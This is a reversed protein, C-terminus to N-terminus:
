CSTTAEFERPAAIQSGHIVQSLNEVVDGLVVAQASLQESAAASQEATAASGQVVGEMTHITESVQTIGQSQEDAAASVEAIFESLRVVSDNISTLIEGVEGAAEVGNDANKRSREILVVTNNAAEASRRALNRVEEAVVAFGKGAEGARAAEVAANLALLNTQFAIENINNVIKATEESSAKIDQVAESMREMASRGGELIGVTEESTTRAERANTASQKTMSAMEALTKSIGETSSAQESSSEAMSQSSSSVQGAAEAVQRSGSDLSDVTAQLIKAVKSATALGLLCGFVGISVVAIIITWLMSSVQSFFQEQERGAAEAMRADIRDDLVVIAAKHKEIELTNKVYSEVAATLKLNTKRAEVAMGVFPTNKLKEVDATVNKLLDGLHKLLIDAKGVDHKLHEFQVQIIHNESTNTHAGLLVMREMTSVKEREKPNALRKVVADIYGDSLGMSHTTLDYIEDNIRQNAKLLADIKTALGSIKGVDIDSGMREVHSAVDDYAAKVKEIPLDGALWLEMKETSEELCTNLRAREEARDRLSQMQRNSSIALIGAVVLLVLFLVNPLLLKHKLKMRRSLKM